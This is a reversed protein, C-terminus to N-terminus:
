MMRGEKESWGAKGILPVFQCPDLMRTKVHGAHKFNLLLDQHRLDGVPIVLRGEEALQELLAPPVFPAAATVLIVAYPAGPLYGDSGDGAIVVVGDYGLRALRGRASNALAENREITYVRAGLYALIAAQYGSGTGVELAKDGAQVDAAETMAAVIYPQSITEAEGLPLPRDDYAAKVLAPPVFEHRPVVFMADLVKENRIGRHRLQIEVM